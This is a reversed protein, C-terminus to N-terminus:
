RPLLAAEATAALNILCHMAISVRTSGARLRALGLLAGLGLATAMGYFDYQVHVLGFYVSTAAVAAPGGWASEFARFLFGRFYLEEFVPAFLGFALWILPKFGSSAYTKAVFEPVVDRGLTLTLLDSGLAFAAALGLWRLVTRAAVPELALYGAATWGEKRAAFLWLLSACVPASLLTAAAVLMGNHQFGAAAAASDYAPDQKMNWLIACLVVVAQSLAFAAAVLLSLGIAPWVRYPEPAAAAAEAAKM